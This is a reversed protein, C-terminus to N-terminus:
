VNAVVLFYSALAMTEWMTMFAYADAALVLMTMSALFVHYELCLLGPPTGEGHRFYGAAFASVGVGAVGIVALFYAALSDLRLHYHLQPLGIPLEAVQPPAFVAGLALALLALGGLAGLPFLVQAVVRFRRLWVIGLIGVFLWAGVVILIWDLRLWSGPDFVAPALASALAQTL